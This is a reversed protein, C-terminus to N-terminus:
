VGVIMAATALDFAARRVRAIPGAELAPAGAIRRRPLWAARTQALHAVMGAVAAAALIPLAAGLVAEALAGPALAAHGACAAAIAAGLRRALTGGLAALAVLAAAAAVGGTITPSAAHLGAQRALARRRPSPRFPRHDAMTPARHYPAAGM